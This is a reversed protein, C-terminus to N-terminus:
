AGVPHQCEYCVFWMVIEAHPFAEGCRICDCGHTKIPPPPPPRPTPPPEPDYKDLYELISPHDKAIM